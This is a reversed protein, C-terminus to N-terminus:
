FLQGNQNKCDYKVFIVSATPSSSSQAPKRGRPPPPRGGLFNEGWPSKQGGSIQDSFLLIILMVFSIQM